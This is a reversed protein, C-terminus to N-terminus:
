ATYTYEGEENDTFRIPMKLCEKIFEMMKEKQKKSEATKGFRMLQRLTGPKNGHADFKSNFENTASGFNKMTISNGGDSSFSATNIGDTIEVSYTTGKFVRGNCKIKRTTITM